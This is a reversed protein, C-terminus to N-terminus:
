RREKFRSLIEQVPRGYWRYVAGAHILRGGRPSTTIANRVAPPTRFLLPLHEDEVSVSGNRYSARVLKGRPRSDALITIDVFDRLLAFSM